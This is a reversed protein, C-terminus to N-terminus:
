AGARALWSAGKMLCGARYTLTHIWGDDPADNPCRWSKHGAADWRILASLCSIVLSM